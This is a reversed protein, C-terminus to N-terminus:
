WFSFQMAASRRFIPAPSDFWTAVAAKPQGGSLTATAGYVKAPFVESFANSQWIQRRHFAALPKTFRLLNLQPKVTGRFVRAEYGSKTDAYARKTEAFGRKTDQIWAEYGTDM